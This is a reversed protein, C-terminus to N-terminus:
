PCFAYQLVSKPVMGALLYPINKNIKVKRKIACFSFSTWLLDASSGALRSFEPVLIAKLATRFWPLMPREHSHVVGQSPEGGWPCSEAHFAATLWSPHCEWFSPGPGNAQFFASPCLMCWRAQSTTLYWKNENRLPSQTFIKKEAKSMGFRLALYLFSPQPNTAWIM